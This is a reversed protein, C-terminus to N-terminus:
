IKQKAKVNKAAEKRKQEFVSADIVKCDRVLWLTEKKTARDILSIRTVLTERNITFRGDNAGDLNYEDQVYIDPEERLIRTKSIGNEESDGVISYIIRGNIWDNRLQVFKTASQLDSYHERARDNMDSYKCELSARHISFKESNTNMSQAVFALVAIALVILLLYKLARKMILRPVDFGM